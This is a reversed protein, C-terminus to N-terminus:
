SASETAGKFRGLFAVGPGISKRNTLRPKIRAMAVMTPRAYARGLWNPFQVHFPGHNRGQALRSNRSTPFSGSASTARRM